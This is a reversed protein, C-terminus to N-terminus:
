ATTWVLAGNGIFSFSREVIGSKSSSVGVETVLAAGAAYLDGTDKGEFCFNITVAAGVLLAEQGNTDTEDWFANASGSWSKIATENYTKSTDSLNTDEAFEASESVSFDNLEAIANTLGAVYVVGESGHHNAM